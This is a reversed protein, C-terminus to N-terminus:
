IAALPFGSRGPKGKASRQRMADLRASPQRADLLKGAEGPLRLRWNPYEDVTGPLNPQESVGLADELPLIALHCPTAATYRAAADVVADPASPPPEEGAAVGAHVLAGWLFHRIEVREAREAAVADHGHAKHLGARVDIDLGRWWGATPPLDHTTTMAVARPRWSDPARFFGYGDREFRLVQMGAIGQADLEERFGHPLTGLDEGIVIARHRLSELATLRFLSQVPYSVYAGQTASAGEPILWLRMLGMVHDIRLGGMHRMAARLTAIYPAFAEATLAHPSFTTLGWNQGDANYYDPPAGVCAGVLLDKQRSWAHSGRGDQGVALDAILGIRMGAQRAAAQTADLSRAVLWQLFAHFRIETENAAAFEAVALSSPDRLEAPWSRWSWLGRDTRLLSAQLAEFRAHDRLRDGGARM